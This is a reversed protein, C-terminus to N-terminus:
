QLLLLSEMAAMVAQHVAQLRSASSSSPSPSPSHSPSPIRCPFQRQDLNACTCPACSGDSSADAVPEPYRRVAGRGRCDKFTSSESLTLSAGNAANKNNTANNASLVIGAGACPYVVWESSGSLAIGDAADGGVASGKSAGLFTILGLQHLSSSQELTIQALGSANTDGGANSGSNGGSLTMNGRAKLTSNVSLFIV